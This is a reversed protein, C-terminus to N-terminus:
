YYILLGEAQKILAELEATLRSIESPVEEPSIDLETLSKGLDDRRKELQEIRARASARANKAGELSQKVLQIEKEFNRPSDIKM